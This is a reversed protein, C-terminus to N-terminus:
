SNSIWPNQRSVPILRKEPVQSGLLDYAAAWTAMVGGKAWTLLLVQAVMSVVYFGFYMATEDIGLQVGMLPLILDGYAIIAVAVQLLYYWWFSLDLLILQGMKKKTLKFSRIVARFAGTGPKDMIVFDAFRMRYFLPIAVLGFIVLMIGYVPLLQQINGELMQQMQEMTGGELSVSMMMAFIERGSDTFLYFMTSIYACALALVFFLVFRLLLLRLVPGFRRFGEKLQQPDAQRGRSVSLATFVFGIEWFPMAITVGYTLVTQVTTLISRTGMGSLGGTSGIGRDLLYDVVAVAFLLLAAVGAHIFVLRRHSYRNEKLRRAAYEKLERRNRIDM